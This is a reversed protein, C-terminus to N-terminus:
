RTTMWNRNERFDLSIHSQHGTFIQMLLELKKAKLLWNIHLYHLYQRNALAAKVPQLLFLKILAKLTFSPKEPKEAKQAPRSSTLVISIRGINEIVKLQRITAERASEAESTELGTIDLSFGINNDNIVIDSSRSQVSSGDSFIIDAIISKIQKNTFSTM